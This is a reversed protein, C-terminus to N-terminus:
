VCQLTFFHLNLFSVKDQNLGERAGQDKKMELGRKLYGLEDKAAPHICTTGSSPSKFPHLVWQSAGDQTFSWLSHFFNCYGACYTIFLMLTLVLKIKPPLQQLLNVLSIALNSLHQGSASKM